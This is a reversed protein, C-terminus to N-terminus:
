GGRMQVGDAVQPPRRQAGRIGVSSGAATPRLLGLAVGACRSACAFSFPAPRQKM